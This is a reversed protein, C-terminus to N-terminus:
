DPPPHKGTLLWNGRAIVRLKRNFKLKAATARGTPTLGEIKLGGEIWRFHDTWKQRRSNFLRVVRKTEPDEASMHNSRFENCKNCALTLNALVTKGGRPDPRIHDIVMEM